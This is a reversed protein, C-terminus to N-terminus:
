PKGRTHHDHFPALDCAIGMRKLAKVRTSEKDWLAVEVKFTDVYIVGIPRLKNPLKKM